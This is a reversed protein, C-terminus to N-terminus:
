IPSKSSKTEVSHLLYLEKFTDEPGKATFNATPYRTAARIVLCFGPMLLQVEVKGLEM